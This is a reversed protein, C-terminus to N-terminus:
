RIERCQWFERLLFSRFSYLGDNEWLYGDRQLVLLLRAIQSEVVGPDANPRTAMLADKIRERSRGEPFQCIHRLIGKAATADSIEFQEVLRQHWTDFQSLHSPLLLQRFASDIAVQDICPVGLDVLAHFILQLHHPLPWGIRRIIEARQAEPIPLQNSEGLKRLFSDAESVTLAELSLNALDNITKRLQRDDVFTDLGISGLFVWRIRKRYTQRLARMWHLLQSVRKTGDEHKQLQLLLEPMEDIVLLVSADSSEIRRFISELARGLTSHDPDEVSGMDMDVGAAGVKMGSISQRVKRFTLSLRNLAEPHLGSQSLSDILKEAFALEDPCGEVNM